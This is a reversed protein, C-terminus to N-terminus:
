QAPNRREYLRDLLIVALLIPIFFVIAAFVDHVSHQKTFVTALCILVCMVASGLQLPINSRWRGSLALTSAAVLAGVVHLSPLVTANNDISYLHRVIDTCINDRAFTEPRLEQVAPFLACFTIGLSFGLMYLWMMRRFAPADTIFVLLGVGIMYFLWLIYPIVFYECFPIRDDLPMYSVIPDAVSGCYSDVLLYGVAYVPFYLLYLIDRRGKFIDAIKKIM